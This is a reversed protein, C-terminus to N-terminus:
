WISWLVRYAAQIPYSGSNQSAELMRETQSPIYQEKYKGVMSSLGCWFPVWFPHFPNVPDQFSRQSYIMLRSIGKLHWHLILLCLTLQVGPQPAYPGNQISQQPKTLSILTFPVHTPTIHIVNPCRGCFFLSLRTGQFRRTKGRVVWPLVFSWSGGKLGAYSFLVWSSSRKSCFQFLFQFVWLGLYYMYPNNHIFSIFKYNLFLWPSIFYLWYITLLMSIVIYAAM